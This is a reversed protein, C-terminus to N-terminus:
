LTAYIYYVEGDLLYKRGGKQRTENDHIQTAGKRVLHNITRTCNDINRFKLVNDAKVTKSYTKAKPEVITCYGEYIEDFAPRTKYGTFHNNADYCLIGHKDERYHVPKVTKAYIQRGDYGSETSIVEALVPKNYLPHKVGVSFIVKTKM